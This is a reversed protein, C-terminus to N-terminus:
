SQNKPVNQVIQASSVGLQGKAATSFFHQACFMRCLDGVHYREM